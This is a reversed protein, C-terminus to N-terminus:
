SRRGAGLAVLAARAVWAVLGSGILVLAFPVLDGGAPPDWDSLVSVQPGILAVVALGGLLTNRLLMLRFDLTRNGGFCGCPLRDGGMSRARVISGSFASLLVVAAAGGIKTRGSLMLAVISLEALPVAVSLLRVSGAPLAYGGLAEMWRGRRVTKSAAAWGFLVALVLAAAGTISDAM